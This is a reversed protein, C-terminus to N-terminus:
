RVRKGWSRWGVSLRSKGYTKPYSFIVQCVSKFINVFKRALIHFSYLTLIKCDYSRWLTNSELKPWVTSIIDWFDGTLWECSEPLPQLKLLITLPTKAIHVFYFHIEPIINVNLPVIFSFRSIKWNSKFMGCSKMWAILIKSTNTTRYLRCRQLESLRINVCQVNWPPEQISIRCFM